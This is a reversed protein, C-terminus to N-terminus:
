FFQVPLFSELLFVCSVLALWFYFKKLIQM